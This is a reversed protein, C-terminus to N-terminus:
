VLEALQHGILSGLAVGMGSLRVGLHINTDISEVIPKKTSGTAIIGSWWIDEQWEIEPLIVEDVISRLYNQIEETIGFEDTSENDLAINRGGGILLREQYDRFYVFGKDYHFCGELKFDKIPKTILVQNRGPKIDIDPFISPTFANTTIFLQNARFELEKANKFNISVSDENANYGEVEVGYLIEIGELLVLKKLKSMMMGPHLQGEYKNRIIHSACNMGFNNAELSFCGSLGTAQQILQNIEPIAHTAEKIIIAESQKFIEYGCKTKYKLAEDGIRDRLIKLGNWRSQILKAVEEEGLQRIDELIETVSGFCAFGANRTSAGYPIYSRELVLIDAKPHKARLSLATSLGVLGAGVIVFDHARSLTDLEWFSFDRNALSFKDQM